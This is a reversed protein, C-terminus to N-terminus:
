VNGRKEKEVKSIESRLLLKAMTYDEGNIFDWKYLETLEMDMLELDGLRNGTYVFTGYRKLLQQVDYITKM